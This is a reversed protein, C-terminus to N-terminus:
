RHRWHRWYWWFRGRRGGGRSSWYEARHNASSDVGAYGTAEGEAVAAAVAAAVDADTMTPAEQTPEGKV